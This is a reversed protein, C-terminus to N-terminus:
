LIKERLKQILDVFYGSKEPFKLSLKEYTEIAKLFLGQEVYIKALTESVIVPEDVASKRAKNELDIKDPAPASIKPEEQIFKEILSETEAPDTTNQITRPVESTKKSLRAEPSQLHLVHERIQQDIIIQEVFQQPEQGPSQLALPSSAFPRYTHAYENRTKQLWWLFSYPLHEDNYVSLKEEQNIELLKDVAPPTPEQIPENAEGDAPGSFRIESLDPNQRFIHLGSWFLDAIPDSLIPHLTSAKRVPQSYPFTQVLLQYEDESISEPSALLNFFLTKLHTKKHM